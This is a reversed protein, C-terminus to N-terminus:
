LPEIEGGRERERQPDALTTIFNLSSQLTILPIQKIKEKKEILNVRTILGDVCLNLSYSDTRWKKPNRKDVTNYKM